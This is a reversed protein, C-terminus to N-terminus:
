QRSLHLFQNFWKRNKEQKRALPAFINRPKLFTVQKAFTLGYRQAVNKSVELVEVDLVVESDRRDNALIIQEALTLKEPQDRIVVANLSENVYVRKTELITRLLNAMDKAKATSLYFTRIMLDQYQQRKQKTDPIVLLTDPAVHRAFLQNTSLVLTLAEDFPMDKTFITVLDDRVDKEFIININATRALIEFVQKLRTNQFRLTVPEASDGITKYAHQMQAIATIGDLAQALSPDLGIAREYAAMAEELRGLNRLKEGDQLARRTDKLRVTDGLATHHEPRSPDLGLAIQFEQLAEPLQKEELYRRGEAYHKKAAQTKVETLIRQLEQNFPDQRLAERYEAVAGDWDEQQVLEEARQVEPAACAVMVFGVLLVVLGAYRFRMHQNMMWM